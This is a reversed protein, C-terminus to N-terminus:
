KVYLFYAMLFLYWFMLLLLLFNLIGGIVPVSSLNTGLTLFPIEIHPIQSMTTLFNTFTPINNSGVVFRVLTVLLILAFVIGLIGINRNRRITKLQRDANYYSLERRLRKYYRRRNDM